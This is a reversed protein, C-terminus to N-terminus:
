PSSPKTFAADAAGRMADVLRRLYVETAVAAALGIAVLAAADRFGPQPLVFCCYPNPSGPRETADIGEFGPPTAGCKPGTKEFCRTNEYIDQKVQMGLINIGLKGSAVFLSLIYALALAVIIRLPPRSLLTDDNSLDAFQTAAVNFSGFLATGILVGFVTYRFAIYGIFHGSTAQCIQGIVDSGWHSGCTDLLGGQSLLAYTVIAAVMTQVWLSLLYRYARPRIELWAFDRRLLDISQKARSIPDPNEASVGELEEELRTRWAAVSNKDGNSSIEIGLLFSRIADRLDCPITHELAEIKDSLPRRSPHQHRM